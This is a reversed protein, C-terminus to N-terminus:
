ELLLKKWYLLYKPSSYSLSIQLIIFITNNVYRKNSKNELGTIQNLQLERTESCCNLGKPWCLAARPQSMSSPRLCSQCWGSRVRSIVQHLEDCAGSHCQQGPETLWSPDLPCSFLLLTGKRKRLSGRQDEAHKCFPFFLQSLESGFVCKRLYSM